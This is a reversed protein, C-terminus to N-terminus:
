WGWTQNGGGGQSWGGQNGGGGQSWGGQNGGWGGQGEAM